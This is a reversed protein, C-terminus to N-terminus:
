ENSDSLKKKNNKLRAILISTSLSKRPTPIYKTQSFVHVLIVLASSPDVVATNLTWLLADMSLAEDSEKWVAVYVANEDYESSWRSGSEERISGLEYVRKNGNGNVNNNEIEERWREEEIESVGGGGSDWEAMREPSASPLPSLDHSFTTESKKM